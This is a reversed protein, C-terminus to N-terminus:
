PSTEHSKEGSFQVSQVLENKSALHERLIHALMDADIPSDQGKNKSYRSDKGCNFSLNPTSKLIQVRVEEISTGKVDSSLSSSATGFLDRKARENVVEERDSESIRMVGLGLKDNILDERLLDAVGGDSTSRRITGSDVAASGGSHFRQLKSEKSEKTSAQEKGLSGDGQPSPPTRPSACHRRSNCKYEESVGSGMSWSLGLQSDTIVSIPLAIRPAPSSSAPRLFLPDGSKQWSEITVKISCNFNTKKLPFIRTKEDNSLFEALNIDVVGIRKAKRKRPTAERISIHLLLPQVYNTCANVEFTVPFRTQHDWIAHHQLPNVAATQTLGSQQPGLVLGPLKWKAFLNGTQPYMLLANVTFDVDYQVARKSSGKVLQQFKKQM